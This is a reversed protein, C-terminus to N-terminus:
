FILAEIFIWFLHETTKRWIHSVLEEKSKTCQDVTVTILIYKQESWVFLHLSNNICDTLHYRQPNICSSPNHMCNENQKFMNQLIYICKIHLWNCSIYLYPLFSSFCDEFSTGIWLINKPQDKDLYFSLVCKTSESHM